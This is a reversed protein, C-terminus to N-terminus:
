FSKKIGLQLLLYSFFIHVMVSVVFLILGDIRSIPFLYISLLSVGFASDSKDLLMWWHMNKKAAAGPAIGHRRKLYSNPLEFVLYALGLLFGALFAYRPGLVPYGMDLLVTLAANLIPLILFARWTKNGGFLLPSVPIAFASVWQRKVVLMHLTNSLILPLVIHPLYSFM